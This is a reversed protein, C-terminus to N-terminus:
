IEFVRAANGGLVLAREDDDMGTAFTRVIELGQQYTLHRGAPPWDTGWLLRDPGYSQLLRQFFGLARECRFDWPTAAAGYFASAKVFLNAHAAGALLTDYAGDDLEMGGPCGMHNLTFVVESQQQVLELLTAYNPPGVHLNCVLGTRRYAAWLPEQAADLMWKLDPTSPYYSTGVAGFEERARQVRQAADPQHMPVDALMALRDPHEKVWQACEQNNGPSAPGIVPLMISKDVGSGDMYYLLRTLSGKDHDPTMSPYNDITHVHADIIPM